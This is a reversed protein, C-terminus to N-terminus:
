YLPACHPVYRAARAIERPTPFDCATKSPPSHSCRRQPFFSIRGYDWYVLLLLRASSNNRRRRFQEQPASYGLPLPTPFPIVANSDDGTGCRMGKCFTFGRVFRRSGILSGVFCWWCFRWFVNVVGMKQAIICIGCM